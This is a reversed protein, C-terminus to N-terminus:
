EGNHEGRKVVQDNMLTIQISDDSLLTIQKAISMIQQRTIFDSLNAKQLDTRLRDTIHRGHSAAEYKKAATELILTRLAEGDPQAQEMLRAIENELRNLDSFNIVAVDLTEVEAQSLLEKIMHSFREDTILYHKGCQRNACVWKQKYATRRDQRRMAPSGCCGCLMPVAAESIVREHVCNTQTSNLGRVAQAQRFEEQSIVAPFADTGVYRSDCLLRAVRNKNWQCKGPLYPVKRETLEEAIKKLSKGSIYSQFIGRLETVEEQVTIVVGNEVGYGFPTYRNTM